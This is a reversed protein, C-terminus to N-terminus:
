QQGHKLGHTLYPATCTTDAPGCSEAEQVPGHGKGRGDDTEHEGESGGM